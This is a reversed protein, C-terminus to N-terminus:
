VVEVRQIHPKLGLYTDKESISTTGSRDNTFEVLIRRKNEYFKDRIIPMLTDFDAGSHLLSIVQLNLGQVQLNSLFFDSADAEAFDKVSSYFAELRLLLRQKLAEQERAELAFFRDKLKKLFEENLQEIHQHNSTIISSMIMLHNSARMVNIEVFDAVKKDQVFFKFAEQKMFEVQLEASAYNLTSLLGFDTVSVM